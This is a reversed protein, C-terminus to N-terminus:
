ARSRSAGAAGTRANRSKGNRTKSKPEGPIPTPEGLAERIYLKKVAVYAVVTLPAALAIGM